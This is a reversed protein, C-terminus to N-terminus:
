IISATKYSVGHLTSLEQVTINSPVRGNHHGIFYDAMNIIRKVNQYFHGAESFISCLCDVGYITCIKIVNTANTLGMVFLKPVFQSLQMDSMSSSAIIVILCMFAMDPAESPDILHDLAWKEWTSHPASINRQLLHIWVSELHLLLSIHGTIENPDLAMHWVKPKNFKSLRPPTGPMHWM